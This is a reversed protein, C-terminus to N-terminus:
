AALGLERALLAAQTRSRVNLKSYINKLHWHITSPAVVLAAAIDQNSLGAAILRLVDRERSSLPDLALLSPDPAALPLVPPIRDAGEWTAAAGGMGAALGRALAPAASLAAPMAALLRRAYPQQAGRVQALLASLSPGEDAFVRVYGEPEALRLARGLAALALDPEGRQHLVLAQVTLIEIVRGWRGAGEAAALLRQLLRGAEPSRGQAWLVRALTLHLYEGAFSPGDDASLGSGAAWEAAAALDGQALCLRARWAALLVIDRNTPSRRVVQEARAM